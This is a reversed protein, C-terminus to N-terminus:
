FDGDDARPADAYRRQYAAMGWNEGYWAVTIQREQAWSATATSLEAIVAAVGAQRKTM